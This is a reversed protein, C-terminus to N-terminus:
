AITLIGNAASADLLLTEGDTLTISSGYDYFIILDDNTATDNYLVAYRFPGVSGGSATLLLDNITLKYTGSAQASSATTIDRTSCNTYSIQTLDALVSNTALPATNTLAWVLQDSGLNHKKEAQAEVFANFKQASATPM